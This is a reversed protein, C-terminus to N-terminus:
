EEETEANDNSRWRRERGGNVGNLTDVGDNHKEPYPKNKIKQSKLDCKSDM